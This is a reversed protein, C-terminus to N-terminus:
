LNQRMAKAIDIKVARVAVEAELQLALDAVKKAVDDMVPPDDVECPQKSQRVQSTNTQLLSIFQEYDTDRASKQREIVNKQYRLEAHITDMQSRIRSQLASGQEQLSQKFDVKLVECDKQVILILAELRKQADDNELRLKDLMGTKDQKSKELADIKLAVWTKLEHVDTAYLKSKDLAEVQLAVRNKLEYVDTAHLRSEKELATTQVRLSGIEHDTKELLRKLMIGVKSNEGKLFEVDAQAAALHATVTQLQEWMNHNIRKEEVDRNMRTGMFESRESHHIGSQWVGQM